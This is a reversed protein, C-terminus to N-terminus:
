QEKDYSINMQTGVNKKWVTRNCKCSHLIESFFIACMEFEAVGIMHWKMSKARKDSKENMRKIKKRLYEIKKLHCIGIVKAVANKTETVESKQQKKNNRWKQVNEKRIVNKRNQNIKNHAVNLNPNHQTRM